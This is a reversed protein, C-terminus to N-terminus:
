LTILDPFWPLDALRSPDDVLAPADTPRLAALVGAVIAASPRATAGELCPVTVVVQAVGRSRLEALDDDSLWDTVIVKDRLNYPTHRRILNMDGAILDAWAFDAKVRPTGEGEPPSIQEFSLGALRGAMLRAFRDLWPGAPLSFPLEFLLAPDAYRLRPSHQALADALAQRNLGPAMLVRRFRFLTPHAQTIRRLALRDLADRVALGDVLPTQGAADRLAQAMPHDFCADGLRLTLPMGELAVVDVDTATAERVLAVARRMDGAAGRRRVIVERGLVHATFEAEPQRGLHVVVVQPMIYEPM